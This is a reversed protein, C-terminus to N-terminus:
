RLYFNGQPIQPKPPKSQRSKKGLFHEFKFLRIDQKVHQVTQPDQTQVPLTQVKGTLIVGLKQGVDLFFHEDWPLDLIGGKCGRWGVRLESCM